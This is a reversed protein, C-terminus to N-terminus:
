SYKACTKQHVCMHMEIPSVSQSTLGSPVCIYEAQTSAALKGFHNYWNLNWEVTCSLKLLEGMRSKVPYQQDKIRISTYHYRMTTKIQM